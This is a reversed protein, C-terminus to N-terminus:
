RRQPPTEVHQRVAATTREIDETALLDLLAGRLVALVLTRRARGATSVREAPPQAAALVAMWDEVTARAFDAWVGEADALSRAYGEVWLTLLARHEPMSLWSWVQVAVVELGPPHQTGAPRLRELLALEDARARDLLARTLGDKSGFLFLLVRPSSGIAAALPRLSLDVLGHLLVYQYSRELLDLKRVSPM